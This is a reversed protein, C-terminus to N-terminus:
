PTVSPGGDTLQITRRSINVIRDCDKPNKVLPKTSSYSIRFELDDSSAIWITDSKRPIETLPLPLSPDMKNLRPEFNQVHNLKPGSCQGSCSIEIRNSPEMISRFYESIPPIPIRPFGQPNSFSARDIASNSFWLSGLARDFESEAVAGDSYILKVNATALQHRATRTRYDNEHDRGKDKASWNTLMDIRQKDTASKVLTCDKAKAMSEPWGCPMVHGHEEDNALIWEEATPGHQVVDGALFRSGSAPSSHENENDTEM